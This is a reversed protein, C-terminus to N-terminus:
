RSQMSLHYTPEKGEPLEDGWADVTVANWRVWITHANAQVMHVVPGKSLPPLSSFMHEDDMRAREEAERKREKALFLRLEFERERAIM